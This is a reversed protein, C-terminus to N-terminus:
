WEIGNKRLLDQAYSHGLRAAIKLNETAQSGKGLRSYISWLHVYAEAYDPKIEIVREFDKIAQEYNRNNKYATGLGSYIIYNNETVKVTHDFLTFTNQWLRVQKWTVLALCLLISVSSVVLAEKRYRWNKLLESAGWTAMIFLGILPIYTYRDARAQFGVQVLGIVPVLTGVYWLWGVPLYPNKEAKRIVMVTIAILLLAAGVVQWVPFSPPVPYLFALDTPWITKEIYAIYSIFANSIRDSLSWTRLAGGQEQVRYTVISSLLALIFLPIKEWFLSYIFEWRNRSGARIEGKVRDDAARKRKKKTRGKRSDTNMAASIVQDSKIQQFRQLPWYDLLLLVFPLTVLMPKAMLGLAFFIVVILYRKLGPREVYTCYAGMTLIWFLASLVDKREAVFAVSEVHLPHLAFLAAVFASEWRANTMRRLVFFLLLVNVTHYVLNSLHHWGPKLGFFQVDLMHSIWTLPHWNAAYGTTFAWKIGELTLGQEIHQNQTVYLPDDFIIFDCNRVWWFVSLTAVLLLVSIILDQKNKLMAFAGSSPLSINKDQRNSEIIVFEM